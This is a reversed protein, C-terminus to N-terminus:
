YQPSPFKESSGSVTEMYYIGIIQSGLFDMLGSRVAHM